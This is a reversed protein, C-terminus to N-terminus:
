CFNCKPKMGTQIKSVFMDLDHFRGGLKSTYEEIENIFQNGLRKQVYNLSTKPNADLLLYLDLSKTVLTKGLFQQSSPNDSVFVIHCVRSESLTAAWSALQNYVFHERIKEKGLFGDIVVVPYEIDPIASVDKGESEYKQLLKSRKKQQKETLSELSRSIADFIKQVEMENTTSIGAKAGTTATILADVFGSIQTLFGFAPYFNVQSSLSSLLQYDGKGILDDCNIV